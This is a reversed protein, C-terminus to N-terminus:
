GPRQKREGDPITDLGKNALEAPGSQGGSKDLVRWRGKLALSLGAVCIGGM